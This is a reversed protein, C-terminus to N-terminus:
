LAPDRWGLGPRRTFTRVAILIASCAGASRRAELQIRSSVYINVKLNGRVRDFNSSRWCFIRRM